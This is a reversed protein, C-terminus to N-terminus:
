LLRQGPAFVAGRAMDINDEDRVSRLHGNGILFELAM